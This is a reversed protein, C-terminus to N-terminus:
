KKLVLIVETLREEYFRRSLHRYLPDLVRKSVPDWAVAHHCDFTRWKITVIAPHKVALLNRVRTRRVTRYGLEKLVRRGTSTKTGHSRGPKRKPHLM